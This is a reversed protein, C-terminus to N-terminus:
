RLNDTLSGFILSAHDIEATRDVVILVGGGLLPELVGSTQEVGDALDRRNHRVKGNRGVYQPLGGM